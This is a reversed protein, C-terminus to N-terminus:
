KLECSLRDRNASPQGHADFINRRYHGAQDPVAISSMPADASCRIRSVRRARAWAELRGIVTLTKKGAAVTGKEEMPWQLRERRSTLVVEELRSVFERVKHAPRGPQGPQTM